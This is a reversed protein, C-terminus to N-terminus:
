HLLPRMANLFAAYFDAVSNWRQKPDLAMGRALVEALPAPITEMGCPDSDYMHKLTEVQPFTRVGTMLECIVVALSFVDTRADLPYGHLQEPSMYGPSGELYESKDHGRSLKIAIGFDLLKLSLASDIMLNEPKIDRHLVGRGHAYTLAEACAMAIDLVAPLALPGMQEGIMRLNQGEVYEMVIFVRGNETEINHLRVINEHSLKMAVAAERKIQAMAEPDRAIEPKLMKIAVDMKLMTDFARFVTGVEGENIVHLLSYRHSAFGEKGASKHSPTAKKFFLSKRAVPKPSLPAVAKPSLTRRAQPASTGALGKTRMVPRRLRPM